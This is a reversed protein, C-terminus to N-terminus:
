MITIHMTPEVRHLDRDYEAWVTIRQGPNLVLINHTTRGRPLYILTDPQVYVTLTTGTRFPNFQEYDKLTRVAVYAPHTFPSVFSIRAQFRVQMLNVLSTDRIWTATFQANVFTGRIELRNNSRLYGVSISSGGSRVIVTGPTVFVPLQGSPCPSATRIYPTPGSTLRAGYVCLMTPATNPSAPHSLWGALSMTQSTVAPATATATPVATATFTATPNSVTTGGVTIWQTYEFTNLTSNYLGQATVVTGPGIGSGPYGATAVGNINVATCPAQTPSPATCYISGVNTLPLVFQTNNPVPSSDSLRKNVIVAVYTLDGGSSLSQVTGTFQTYTEHLSHDDLSAATFQTNVFSGHVELSDGARLEFLASASGDNRTLSTGTTVYVPLLGSPCPSVTSINPAIGGVVQSKALCLVTPPTLQAPIAFLTGTVDFQNPVQTASATATATPSLSAIPTPSSTPTATATTGLLSLDQIVGATIGARQNALGNIKLLDNDRLDGLSAASSDARLIQTHVTIWVPLTQSGVQIFLSTPATPQPMAVMTGTITVTASEAAVVHSSSPLLPVAGCLLSALALGALYLRAKM